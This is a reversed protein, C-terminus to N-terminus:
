GKKNNSLTRFVNWWAVFFFPIAIINFWMWTERDGLHVRIIPNYLIAQLGLTCKLWIPIKEFCLAVMSACVILRLFTYFGYSVRWDDVTAVIAILLLLVSVSSAFLSAKQFDQLKNM